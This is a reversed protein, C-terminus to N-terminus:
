KLTLIPYRSKSNFSLNYSEDSTAMQNKFIVKGFGCWNYILKIKGDYTHLLFHYKGRVLEGIQSLTEDSLDQSQWSLSNEYITGAENRIMSSNAQASNESVSVHIPSGSFSVLSYDIIPSFSFTPSLTIDGLSYAEIKVIDKFEENCNM